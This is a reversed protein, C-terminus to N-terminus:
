DIYRGATNDYVSASNDGNPGWSLVQGDFSIDLAAAWDEPDAHMARINHDPYLVALLEVLRGTALDFQSRKKGDPDRADERYGANVAQALSADLILLARILRGSPKEGPFAKDAIARRLDDSGHFETYGAARLANLLQAESKGVASLLNDLLEGASADAPSSAADAKGTPIGNLSFINAFAEPVGEERGEEGIGFLSGYSVYESSANLNVKYGKHIRYEDKTGDRHTVVVIAENVRGEEDVSLALVQVHDSGKVTIDANGYIDHVEDHGGQSRFYIIEGGGAEYITTRGDAQLEGELSSEPAALAAKPDYTGVFVRGETSDLALEGNLTHIRVQADEFDHIFYVAETGTAPDAVVVKIVTEAPNLRTDQTVEATVKASLSAVELTVDNSWIDHVGDGTFGVRAKTDTYTYSGMPGLIGGFQNQSPIAPDSFSHGGVGAMPDWAGPAQYGLQGAAWKMQDLFGQWAAPDPRETGAMVANYYAYAEEYWRVLAPDPRGMPVAPVQSPAYGGGAPGYNKAYAQVRLSQVGSPEM